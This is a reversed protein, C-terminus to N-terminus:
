LINIYNCLNQYRSGTVATGGSRILRHICYFHFEHIIPILWPVWGNAFVWLVFVEYATWIPVGTGFSRIMNDTNQSSFMFIDSRSESPWKANFKFLNGQRRRVYLRM